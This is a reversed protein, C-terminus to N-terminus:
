LAEQQLTISTNNSNNVVAQLSAQRLGALAVGSLPRRLADAMTRCIRGVEAENVGRPPTLKLVHPEYQCFGVLLPFNPDYLMALLYLQGVLKKLWRHPLRSVDLEVGILLGFCRVDRVARCGQLEQTLLQRFLEGRQRVRTEFDEQEARRLTNLLTLIGTHFGYRAEFTEPISCGREALRRAVAGSYMTLAFPFMMDSASKGLTLLDPEIGVESSRVFPGTRYVGTQIEDVLLLCDFNSRMRKLCDLVGEPIARVGGVGQILELQVVGIPHQRFATEIQEAADEAFPDVFVVNPYLPDLGQKLSSKWTGTLAFLTKGGFGGRLALLWDRPSQCVLGIKLAQEVASAGSVAPAFHPLGTLKELRDNLEIRCKDIPGMQSIEALYTPPNHGRVSCAVGAVGDFIRKPGISAYHGAAQVLACRAGVATAVKALSRSYLTRFVRWLFRPDSEIRRLADAHRAMFEPATERLSSVLHLTSVSNPQYTTSHFTTMGRRNWWHFLRQSAAFAGFPIDRQVLSEDYVVVDPLRGLDNSKRTHDALSMPVIWLSKSLDTRTQAAALEGLADRSAVIFGLSSDSDGILRRAEDRDPVVTVGPILTLKGYENLDIAAFNEYQGSEDLIVGTSPKGDAQAAYRALKVAGSLAEEGSNALFM